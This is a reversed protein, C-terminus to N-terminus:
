RQALQAATASQCVRLRPGACFDPWRGTSQWFQALRYRKALAFFRPDARMSETQPIFLFDIIGTTPYGPSQTEAFRFATDVDGAAASWPIVFRAASADTPLKAGIQRVRQRDTPSGSALAKEAAARLEGLAPNQSPPDMTQAERIKGADLLCWRLAWKSDVDAPANSLRQRLETIPSDTQMADCAMKAGFPKWYIQLDAAAARQGYVASERLRGTETLFMALFGNSHPWKPDVSVAKRLLAERKAWDTPALLMEQAVYADASHPDLELARKSARAAEARIGSAQDPPLLPALYAGFKAFNSFAPAFNPAKAIILRLDDFLEFTSKFDEADDHNVFLDCVRLYRSLLQTDTLGGPGLARYACSIVGAISRAISSNLTTSDDITGSAEYSWLSEHRVRDDFHLRAHLNNGTREVTGSVTYGVGLSKLKGEADAGTLAESDTRSITPIHGDNLSTTIQDTLSDAIALDAGLTKIPQVAVRSPSASATSQTWWWGALVIAALAAMSAGLLRRDVWLRSRSRSALAQDPPQGAIAAALAQKLREIRPDRLSGSWDSLDLGQREGFFLPPECPELFLQVLRGRARAVRAESRVNESAVSAPSWCVIVAKADALAREISQEWSAGAPIDDDWWPEFGLKRLVAILKATQRKDSRAYSVFVQPL